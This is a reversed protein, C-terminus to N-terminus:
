CRAANAGPRGSPFDPKENKWSKRPNL